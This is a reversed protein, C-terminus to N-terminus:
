NAGASRRAPFRLLEGPVAVTVAKAPKRHGAVNGGGKKFSRSDVSCGHSSLFNLFRKYDAQDVGILPLALRYEGGGASLARSVLGQIDRRTLDRGLFLPYVDEWFRLQGARLKEYLEDAAQRRRERSPLVRPRAVGIPAPLDLVDITDGPATWAAQEIVNQLERVNGPWDYTELMAMAQATLRVRRGLRGVIHEVLPAIDEVRRRLPPVDLHVVRLRYLLDLRFRGEDVMRTLDRNTASIVRVNAPPVPHDAGVPQMEGCELFRLLLAQMRPSMEGVEDLFVTGGDALALKGPKDRYAGTFSGKVHGFLESELLTDAFAGCNVPMLPRGARGSWAHIMQALVDKGSGSEGTLLIKVDGRAARAAAELLRRM